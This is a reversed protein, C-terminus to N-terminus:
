TGVGSPRSATRPGRHAGVMLEGIARRTEHTSDNDVIGSIRGQFLVAIRGSISLLEDLDTSIVISAVGQSAMERIRERVALTTRIDLGYTPKNYVIVRPEFSLERALLVKRINGGSLTGVRVNPGPTRVDFDRILERARRTIAEPQTRGGIWFPREGIHKLVLNFAVSLQSVVGEGLGDDTVYRIGLRQRDAVSLAEAVQGDVLIHGSTVPRHGAICEALVRQGNGDVGAVGVVEGAGIALSVDSIGVETDSGPHSVGVLEILPKGSQATGPLPGGDSSLPEDDKDRLEPVSGLTSAEDGFMATVILEQLREPTTARMVGPAISGVVRGGRLFSVRDGLTIAEHLKHTIFIVAYGQDRLRRVVNQLEEVGQPTLMSTPEDLILVRSDRWLAKMIEVYQQQGLALDGARADPELRVSLTESLTAFRARAAAVDMRLGGYAGLMLNELVTLSPALVLHQHVMGIGLEIARRPSTLAVETGDLVIRGEDPRYVGSLINMLTSKGAGNEGLLCHVEGRHFELSIDDNAIVGPFRKDIGELRVIPEAVVSESADVDIKSTGATSGGRGIVM